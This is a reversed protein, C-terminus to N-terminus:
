FKKALANVESQAFEPVAIQLIRLVREKDYSSCGGAIEQLQQKLIRLDAARPTLKLIKQGPTISATEDGYAVEEYLKEGPRLGIFKIAIDVDPKYGSLRIMQRALDVIKVPKGMDLVYISGREKDARIGNAASQLILTVAEPITMFYRVVEPDTVTVPGGAEIQKQFLPVVSGTSGLVNGFRVTVFRTARSGYQDLGQCYAEALRKTAGMVNCPNVAKDTSVTVMVPVGVAVCADAVNATGLVNTRVGEIPHEELLPVHKLAAAHFVVSPKIDRVWRAIVERDRVDALATIIKGNPFLDRLQKDIDYLNFEGFDLLVLVEPMLTMIQRCLESGISGGAGTVMVRRGSILAGISSKDTVVEPRGLLDSIEIPRVFYSDQLSGVPALRAAKLGVQTAVEVVRGYDQLTADDKALVLMTPDSRDRWATNMLVAGLDDLTGLVQVGQIFSGTLRRDSVLVGVVKQPPRPSQSIDRIFAQIRTPEGTVLIPKANDEFQNPRPNNRVSRLESFLRAGLRPLILFGTNAAWLIGLTWAALEIPVSAVRATIFLEAGAYGLVTLASAWVLGLVDRFSVYKWLSRYSRSLILGVTSAGVYIAVHFIVVGFAISKSLQIAPFLIVISFAITSLVLDTCLRRTAARADNFIKGLRM